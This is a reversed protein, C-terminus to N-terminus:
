KIKLDELKKVEDELRSIEERKKSIEKNIKEIEQKRRREPDMQITRKEHLTKVLNEWDYTSKKMYCLALGVSFDYHDGKSIRSVTKDGDRWIVTIIGEEVNEYIVKVVPLYPKSENSSNNM